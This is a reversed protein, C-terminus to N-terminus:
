QRGKRLGETFSLLTRRIMLFFAFVVLLLIVIMVVLVPSAEGFPPVPVATSLPLTTSMVAAQQALWFHNGPVFNM